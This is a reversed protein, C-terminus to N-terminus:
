QKIPTPHHHTRVLLNLDRMAAEIQDFENVCSWCTAKPDGGSVRLRQNLAHKPLDDLREILADIRDM